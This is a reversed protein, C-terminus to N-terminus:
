SPKEMRALGLKAKELAAIESEIASVIQAKAAGENIGVGHPFGQEDNPFVEIQVFGNNAIEALVIKLEKLRQDIFTTVTSM